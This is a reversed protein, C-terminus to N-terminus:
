LLSRLTKERLEDRKRKDSPTKGACGELERKLEEVTKM